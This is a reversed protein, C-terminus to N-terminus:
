LGFEKRIETVIESKSTFIDNNLEILYCCHEAAVRRAQEAADARIQDLEVESYEKAQAPM